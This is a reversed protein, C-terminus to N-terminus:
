AQPRQVVLLLSPSIDEKNVFCKRLPDIKRMGERKVLFLLSQIIAAM